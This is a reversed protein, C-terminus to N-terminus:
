GVRFHRVSERLAHAVEDLGRSAARADDALSSNAEAGRAIREINAAIDESVAKQERVSGAISDIGAHAEGVARGSGDITSSVYALAEHSAQLAQVSDHVSAQLSSSKQELARTVADIENATAASKEALKRVEDAVVAFGRGQEGARAAEIAANLALLNTQDAIDKVQGTLNNITAVSSVYDDVSATILQVKSEIGGIEGVLRAVAEGGQRSQELSGGSQRRVEDASDAVSAISTSLQEIDSAIATASANQENASTTIRDVQAQVRDASAAVTEAHGRIERVTQELSALLRNFSEAIRGTEDQRTVPLRQTLDSSGSVLRALSSELSQLAGVVHTRVLLTSLLAVVAAVAVCALTLAIAQRARDNVDQRTADVTKGNDDIQKLLQDRVKRWAPTEDKNLLRIAEDRDSKALDIVRVRVAGDAQWLAAIDAVAASAAADAGALTAAKTAAADFKKGAAEMNKYAQPNQPDLIINRLAQGTQLGQAYMETFAALRAQDHDIFGTFRDTIQQLSLLAIAFALASVLAAVAVTAFFPTQISRAHKFM